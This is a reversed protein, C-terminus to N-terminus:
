AATTMKFIGQANSSDFGLDLKKEGTIADIMDDRAIFEYFSGPVERAVLAGGDERFKRMVMAAKFATQRVRGTKSVEVAEKMPRGLDKQVQAVADVNAVRDTAHNFTNGETSIWAMEASEKLLAEYDALKPPEHQCAFCGLLMPLLKMAEAMSLAGDRELKSLLCQAEASLPDKSRSTVGRVAKQFADSFQEPHLESIFFQAIDEPYDIQKYSRGTMRLRELPYVEALEYGLPRLFRMIAEDGAPLAGMGPMAVTRMAGHDHFVKTGERLCDRVYAEAFPVRALVDSFLAMNLAQALIARSVAPAAQELAPHVTMVRRLMDNRDVGVISTLLAYLPVTM